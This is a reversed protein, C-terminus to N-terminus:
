NPAKPANTPFEENANVHIKRMEEVKQHSQDLDIVNHYMPNFSLDNDLHTELYKFIHWAQYIHSTCPYLLFKSLFSVKFAIDIWGLEVIWRLIGILNQFYNTLEDDRVVTTDLESKYDIPCFPTRALFNPDSLNKNFRLNNHTLEKKINQWLQLHFDNRSISKDDSDEHGLGLM